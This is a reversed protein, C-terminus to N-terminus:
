TNNASGARAKCISKGFLVQPWTGREGLSMRVVNKFADTTPNCAEIVALRADDNHSFAIVFIKDNHVFICQNTKLSFFHTVTGERNRFPRRCMRVRAVEAIHPDVGRYM